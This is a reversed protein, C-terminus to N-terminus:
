WSSKTKTRQGTSIKSRRIMGGKKMPKYKNANEIKANMAKLEGHVSEAERDRNSRIDAYQYGEGGFSKFRKQLEDRQKVLKDMNALDARGTEEMRKAQKAKGEAMRKTREEETEPKPAGYRVKMSPYKKKLAEISSKISEDM